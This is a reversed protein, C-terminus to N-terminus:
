KWVEDCIYTRIACYFGPKEPVENEFGTECECEYGDETNKCVANKDCEHVGDACEDLDIHFLDYVHILLIYIYIFFFCSNKLFKVLIYHRRTM